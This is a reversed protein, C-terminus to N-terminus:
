SRKAKPSRQGIELQTLSQENQLASSSVLSATLRSDGVTISRSWHLLAVPFTGGVVGHGIASWASAGAVSCKQFVRPLILTTTMSDLRIWRASFSPHPPDPSFSAVFLLHKAAVEQLM